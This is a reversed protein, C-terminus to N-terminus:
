RIILNTSIEEDRTIGKAIYTGKLLNIPLTTMGNANFPLKIICRGSLDYLSLSGNADTMNQVLITQGSSFIKLKKDLVIPTSTPSDTMTVIKFRKTPKNSPLATFTYETGDQM